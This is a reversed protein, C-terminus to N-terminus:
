IAKGEDDDEEEDNDNEEEEQEEAKDGEEEGTYDTTSEDELGLSDALMDVFREFQMEGLRQQKGGAKSVLEVLTEESLEGIEQMEKVYDWRRLDKMTIMQKGGSLSEFLEEITM